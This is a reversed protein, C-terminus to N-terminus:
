NLQSNFEIATNQAAKTAAMRIEDLCLILNEKDKERENEIIIHNIITNRYLYIITTLMFFFLTNVKIKINKKKFAYEEFTQPPKFNYLEKESVKFLEDISYMMEIKGEEIEALNADQMWKLITKKNVKFFKSLTFLFMPETHIEMEHRALIAKM